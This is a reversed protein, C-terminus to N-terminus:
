HEFHTFYALESDAYYRQKITIEKLQKIQNNLRKPLKKKNKLM